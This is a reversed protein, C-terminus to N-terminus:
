KNHCAFCLESKENNMVLHGKEKNLPNHCTLCGVRGESFVMETSFKVDRKYEKSDVSVYSDYEMGVPHGGIIDELNMVRGGPNNKIRLKFNQAMIGDHCSLCDNSLRDIGKTGEAFSVSSYGAPINTEYIFEDSDDAVTGGRIANIKTIFEIRLTQDAALQTTYLCTGTPSGADAANTNAAMTTVSIIVGCTATALAKLLSKRVINTLM